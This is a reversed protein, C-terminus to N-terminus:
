VGVEALQSFRTSTHNPIMDRLAKRPALKLLTSSSRCAISDKMATYLGVAFGKLHRLRSTLPACSRSVITLKHLYVSAIEQEGLTRAEPATEDYNLLILANLVKQSSHKGKAVIAELQFREEQTLSFRYKIKPM